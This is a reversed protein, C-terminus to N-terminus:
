DTGVRLRTMNQMARVHEASSTDEGLSWASIGGLRATSNNVIEDFKRTMMETTEWTWFLMPNTDQDLYWMGGNQDDYQAFLRAKEFSAVTDPGHCQGYRTQCNLLCHAPEDGCWGGESCCHSDTCKRGTFNGNNYGCTGDSTEKLAGIMVADREINSYEFTLVGSTYLDTGNASEAQMIPCGTPLMTNDCAGNIQFYKAYFAFGLNIKDPCLGLDLYRQVALKTGEVDSHHGTANSARNVYDYAMITIFEVNDWISQTQNAARFAAMGEPTAAVSLSINQIGVSQNQLESKIASLLLPFDTIEKEPNSSNQAGNGGPYEWDIDVFDYGEDKMWGALNSAFTTRNEEAAVAAFNTSWTGWGGLAIGVKTGNSFRSRIQDVPMLPPTPLTDKTTFSMPDVFSMIVHTISSTVSLISSSSMTINPHWEDIYIVNRFAQAHCTLTTLTLAKAWDSRTPFRM